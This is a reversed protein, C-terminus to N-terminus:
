SDYQLFFQGLFFQVTCETRLNDHILCMIVMLEYVQVVQYHICVSSSKFRPFRQNYCLKKRNSERYLQADMRWRHDFFVKRVDCPCIEIHLWAKKIVNIRKKEGAYWTMCKHEYNVVGGNGSAIRFM